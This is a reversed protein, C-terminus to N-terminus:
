LFISFVSCLTGMYWSGLEGAILINTHFMFQHKRITTNSFARSPRKPELSIFSTLGLPFWGQINMPLMSASVSAGISQGVSAFVSENSFFRISPFISSLLFLPCCLILHNSLITSETSMFTLLSQFMTFSLSAQTAFLRVRSLLQVFCHFM